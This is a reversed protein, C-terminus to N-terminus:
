LEELKNLQFELEWQPTQFMMRDALTLGLRETVEVGLRNEISYLIKGVEKM